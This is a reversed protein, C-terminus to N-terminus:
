EFESSGHKKVLPHQELAEQYPLGELGMDALVKVVRMRNPQWRNSNWSPDLELTGQHRWLHCGCIGTYGVEPTSLNDCGPMLCKAKAPSPQLQQRHAACLGKDDDYVLPQDRPNRCLPRTSSCWFESTDKKGTYQCLHAKGTYSRCPRCGRPIYYHFNCKKCYAWKALYAEM